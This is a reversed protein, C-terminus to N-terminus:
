KESITCGREKSIWRARTTYFLGTAEVWKEDKDLKFDTIPIWQKTWAHCYSESQQMVFYCSCFQKSYYASIIKPFRRINQWDSIVWVGAILLIFLFLSGFIKYQRKM